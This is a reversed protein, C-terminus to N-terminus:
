FAVCILEQAVDGANERAERDHAPCSGHLAGSATAGRVWPFCALLVGSVGMAFADPDTAPSSSWQLAAAASDARASRYPLRTM